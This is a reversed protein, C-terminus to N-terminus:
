TPPLPSPLMRRRRRRQRVGGPPAIARRGAQPRNSSATSTPRHAARGHGARRRRLRRHHGAPGARGEGPRDGRPHPRGPRRADDPPHQAVALPGSAAIEGAFRLAEADIDTVPVLRDLMGIRFADEGGVRAGTYLMELARQQGVIAPLTVTLGFGHHFGLRAFNASMRSEPSGVRFDASLALGLGGGIAAGRSPPWSRRAAGSSGCPRTTSTATAARAVRGGRRKALAAGACFHKGESRLVIARPEPDADILEYADALAAILAFDFYNDPPRHITVTAVITRGATIVM